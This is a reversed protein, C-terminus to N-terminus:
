PWHSPELRIIRAYGKSLILERLNEGSRWLTGQKGWCLAFVHLVFKFISEVVRVGEWYVM